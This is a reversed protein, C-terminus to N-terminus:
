KIVVKKGGVIYIGKAIHTIRRASLDFVFESDHTRIESDDIGTTDGSEFGFEKWGEAASYASESGVPIYLTVNSPTFGSTSEEFTIGGLLAPVDSSKCNISALSTCDVFAKSSISTVPYDVDGYSVTKPITINVAMDSVWLVTATSDENIVYTVDDITL